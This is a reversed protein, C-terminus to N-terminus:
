LIKGLVFNKLLLVNEEVGAHTNIDMSAMGTERIVSRIIDFNKQQIKLTRIGNKRNLQQIRSINGVRQNLRDFSDTVDLAVNIIYLNPVRKKLHAIIKKAFRDTVLETEYMISVLQQIIGQDVLIVEARNEISKKLYLDDLIIISVVRLWNECNIKRNTLLYMMGLYGMRFSSPKLHILYKVLQKLDKRTPKQIFRQYSEVPYDIAKLNEIVNNSLTTKGSGPIGNFELFVIKNNNM